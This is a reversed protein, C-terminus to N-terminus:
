GPPPAGEGSLNLNACPVDVQLRSGFLDNAMDASKFDFQLAQLWALFGVKNPDTPGRVSAQNAYSGGGLVFDVKFPCGMTNFDFHGSLKLPERTMALFEMLAFRERKFGYRRKTSPFMSFHQEVTRPKDQATRCPMRYEAVWEQVAAEFRASGSSYSFRVQPPQQGDGSFTIEAVVHEAEPRGIGMHYDMARRPMVVCLPPRGAATGELPLPTPDLDNNRFSFDQVATVPGDEPQLCPLRYRAVYDFVQDQMDERATNMLVEVDPKADARTFKLLVRMAGDERDLKGRQPYRPPNAAKVLCGLRQAESRSVVETQASVGLVCAGLLAAVFVRRM